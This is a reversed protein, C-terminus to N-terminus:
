EESFSDFNLERDNTNVESPDNEIVKGERDCPLGEPTQLEYKDNVFKFNKLFKFEVRGDYLSEMTVDGYILKRLEEKAERYYSEENFREVCEDVNQFVNDGNENILCTSFLYDNEANEVHYEVTMEDFETTKYMLLIQEDRAAALELAIKRGETKPMGGKVLKNELEVTKKTLDKLTKEHESTWIGSAVLYDKVQSRMLFGAEGETTKSKILEVAVKNGYIKANRFDKANPKKLYVLVDKNNSDKYELKLNNKM